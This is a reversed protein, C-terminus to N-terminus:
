PREIVPVGLAEIVAGSRSGRQLLVAATLIAVGGAVQIPVLGEHLLIAALVVAVLPEFLMLIGTRTGGISRIGVLFLVSPIGAGLVGAITALAFPRAGGFPAGMNGGTAIALVACAIATVLLIWGTAQEAPVSAFRGRSVTVYVTQFGAGLLALAIGLPHITVGAAPDLGGAIVLIMGGLALGLALLREADLREHGLAVAVMAVFAPYIYFALLVLAISALGFAFFMVVNLCLGAVAVLLLGLADNRPLRAPNVLGVGRPMRWAVVVLIVPLGLVARWAVFSFPDFGETYAFRAIPGLLGFGSAAALVILSGALLSPRDRMRHM